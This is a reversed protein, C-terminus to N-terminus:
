VSKQQYPNEDFDEDLESAVDAFPDDLEDGYDSIDDESAVPNYPVIGLCLSLRTGMAKERKLALKYGHDLIKSCIYPM